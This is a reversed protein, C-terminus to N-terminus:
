LIGEILEGEGELNGQILEEEMRLMEDADAAVFVAFDFWQPPLLSVFRDFCSFTQIVMITAHILAVQALPKVALKFGLSVAGSVAFNRQVDPARNMAYQWLIFYSIATTCFCFGNGIWQRMKWQALIRLKESESLVNHYVKRHYLKALPLMALAVIALSFFAVWVQQSAQAVAGQQEMGTGIDYFLASAAVSAVIATTGMCASQTCSLYGRKLLTRLIPHDRWFIRWCLLAPSWFFFSYRRFQYATFENTSEYEKNEKTKGHMEQLSDAGQSRSFNSRASNMVQNWDQADDSTSDGKGTFNKKQWRSKLNRALSIGRMGTALNRAEVKEELQEEFVQCFNDELEWDDGNILGADMANNAQHYQSHHPVRHYAAQEKLELARQAILADQSDFRSDLRERTTVRNAIYEEMYQGHRCQSVVEQVLLCSAASLGLIFIELDSNCSLGKLSNVWSVPAQDESGLSLFEAAAHRPNWQRAQHLELHLRVASQTYLPDLKAMELSPYREQEFELHIFTSSLSYVRPAKAFANVM